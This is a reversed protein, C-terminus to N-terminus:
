SNINLNELIEKDSEKVWVGNEYYGWINNKRSYFKNNLNKKPIIRPAQNVVVSNIPIDKFVVCNAGIRANNGIRVKGIVKGGAGIYVNDGLKPAGNGKSDPINNSGITVQHFIVAGHGIQADSSIFIGSVGHPFHPRGSFEVSLPISANHKDLYLYYLLKYFWALVGKKAKNRVGWFGGLKKILYNLVM